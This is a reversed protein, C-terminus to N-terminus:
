VTVFWQVSMGSVQLIFATRKYLDSEEESMFTPREVLPIPVKRVEADDFLAPAQQTAEPVVVKESAASKGDLVSEEDVVNQKDASVQNDGAPERFTDRDDYDVEASVLPAASEPM